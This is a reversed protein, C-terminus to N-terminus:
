GGGARREAMRSLVRERLGVITLGVIEGSEEDLRVILGEGVDIGVARRPEGISIYLVDAEEDYEWNLAGQRLPIKLADM